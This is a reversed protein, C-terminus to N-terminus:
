DNGRLWDVIMFVMILALPVGIMFGIEIPLNLEPATFIALPALMINLLFLFLAFITKPIDTLRYDTDSGTIGAVQPQTPISGKFSENLGTIERDNITFFRHLIDGEFLTFGGLYLMINICLMLTIIRILNGM